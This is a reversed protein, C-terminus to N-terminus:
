TQEWTDLYCCELDTEIFDHCQYCYETIWINEWAATNCWGNEFLLNLILCKYRWKFDSVDAAMRIEDSINNWIVSGNFISSRKLINSNHPPIKVDNSDSLRADRDHTEGAMVISDTMYMPTLGHIAKFMLVATFYDCREQVNIWRLSRLLDIGHVNIYDLLLVLLMSKYLSCNILIHGKTQYSVFCAYDM